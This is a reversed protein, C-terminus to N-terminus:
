LVRGIAKGVLELVLARAPEALGCIALHEIEELESKSLVPEDDTVKAEIFQPGVKLGRREVENVLDDDDLDSMNIEAFVTVCAM